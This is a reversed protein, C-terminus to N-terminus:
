PQQQLNARFDIPLTRMHHQVLRKAQQDFRFALMNERATDVIYVAGLNSDIRGTFMLYEGNRSPAAQGSASSTVLAALLSLNLVALAIILYKKM